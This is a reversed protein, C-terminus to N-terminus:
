AGAVQWPWWSQRKLEKMGTAGVAFGFLADGEEATTSTVPSIGNGSSDGRGARILTRDYWFFFFPPSGIEDSVTVGPSVTVVPAGAFFFTRSTNRSDGTFFFDLVMTRTVQTGEAGVPASSIGNLTPANRVTNLPSADQGGGVGTM